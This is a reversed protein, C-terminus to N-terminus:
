KFNNPCDGMLFRDSVSCVVTASGLVAACGKDKTFSGQVTTGLLCEREELIPLGIKRPRCTSVVAGDLTPGEGWGVINAVQDVYTAGPRPLCVPSIWRDTVVSNSLKLLAIDNGRTLPDFDPHLKITEVSINATTVDGYCRDYEGLTVKVDYPTLRSVYKKRTM